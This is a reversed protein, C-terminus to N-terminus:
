FQRSMTSPDPGPPDRAIWYSRADRDIRLALPTRGFLRMVLGTPAIVGFFLLGLVVPNTVRHLVMGLRFWVRNLPRLVAPWVLAALLFAAAAAFAWLRPDGGRAVPWAGALAFVGAFVMGFGRDSSGAAEHEHHLNEHLTPNM